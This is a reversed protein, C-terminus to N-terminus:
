PLLYSDLDRPVTKPVCHLPNTRIAHQMSKYRAYAGDFTTHTSLRYNKGTYQWGGNEAREGVKGVVVFFGDEAQVEVEIIQATRFRPASV